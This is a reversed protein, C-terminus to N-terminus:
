SELGRESEISCLAGELYVLISYNNQLVHIADDAAGSQRLKFQGPSLSKMQQVVKDCYSNVSQISRAILKEDAASSQRL